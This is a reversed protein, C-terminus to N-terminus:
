AIVAGHPDLMLVGDSMTHLVTEFRDHEHTRRLEQREMRDALLNVPASSSGWTTPASM